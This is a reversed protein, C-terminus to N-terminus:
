EGLRDACRLLLTNMVLHHVGDGGYNKGAILVERLEERSLVNGLAASFGADRGYGIAVGIVGETDPLACRGVLGGVLNVLDAQFFYLTVLGGHEDDRLLHTEVIEFGEVGGDFRIGLQVSGGLLLEDVGVGAVDVVHLGLQRLEETRQGFGRELDQGNRLVHLLLLGCGVVLGARRISLAGAADVNVRVVEGATTELVRLDDRVVLTQGSMMQLDGDRLFESTDWLEALLAVVSGVCFTPAEVALPQALFDAEVLIRVIVISSELSIDPTRDAEYDIGADVGFVPCALLHDVKEVIVGGDVLGVDLGFGIAVDGPGCLSQAVFDALELEDFEAIACLSSEARLEVEALEVVEDDVGACKREVDEVLAHVSPNRRLFLM